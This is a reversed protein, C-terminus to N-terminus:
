YITIEFPTDGLVQCEVPRYHLKVFMLGAIPSIKGTKQRAGLM